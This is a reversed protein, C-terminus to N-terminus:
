CVISVFFKYKQNNVLKWIRDLSHICANSAVKLEDDQNVVNLWWEHIIKHFSSVIITCFKENEDNLSISKQIINDEHDDVLFKSVNMDIHKFFINDNERAYKAYYSYSVLRLNRNSRLNAYLMWYELNQKIMQQILSYLMIRLWDYNSKENRERQHHLYIDFKKQILDNIETKRDENMVISKWLWSFMDRIVLNENSEWKDWADDDILEVVISQTMKLSLSQLLQWFKSRYQYVDLDDNSVTSRKRLRFWQHTAHDIKLADINMKHEWCAKLRYRLKVFILENVKLELFDEILILHRHCVHSFDHKNSSTLLQYVVILCEHAHKMDIEISTKRKLREILNTSVYVCSCDITKTSKSANARRTENSDDHSNIFFSSENNDLENDNNTFAFVSEIRRRNTFIEYKRRKRKRSEQNENSEDFIISVKTMTMNKLKIEYLFLEDILSMSKTLAISTEKKTMNTLIKWNEITIMRKFSQKKRRERLRTMIIQILLKKVNELDYLKVVDNIRRLRDESFTEFQWSKTEDDWYRQIVKVYAIKRSRIKLTMVRFAKLQSNDIITLTEKEFEYRNEWLKDVKILSWTELMVEDIIKSWNEDNKKLHEIAIMQQEKDNKSRIWENIIRAIEDNNREFLTAIIENMAKDFDDNLLTLNAKFSTTM